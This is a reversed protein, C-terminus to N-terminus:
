GGCRTRVFAAMHEVTQFNEPILDDDAVPIGYEAEIFAVIELVGMSDVLGTELLRDSDKIGHKRAAPFQKLIFERLANAVDSIAPSHEGKAIAM